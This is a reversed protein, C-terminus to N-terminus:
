GSRPGPRPDARLGSGASEMGAPGRLGLEGRGGPRGPGDGDIRRAGTAGDNTVERRGGWGGEGVWRPPPPLRLTRNTGETHRVGGVGGAGRGWGGPPLPSDSPEIQESPPSAGRR